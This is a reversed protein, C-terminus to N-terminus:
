VSFNDLLLKMSKQLDIVIAGMEYTQSDTIVSVYLTLFLTFYM